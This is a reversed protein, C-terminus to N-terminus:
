QGSVMKAKREANWVKFRSWPATFWPGTKTVDLILFFLFLGVILAVFFKITFVSKAADTAQKIPDAM